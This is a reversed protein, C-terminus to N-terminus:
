DGWEFSLDHKKLLNQYYLPLPYFCERQGNCEYILQKRAMGDEDNWFMAIESIWRKVKGKIEQAMPVICLQVYDHITTLLHADNKQRSLQLMRQPMLMASKVHLTTLVRSCSSLILFLDDIAHDRVEQFVVYDSNDRLISAACQTYNIVDNVIYQSILREPFLEQMHMEDNEAIIAISTSAPLLSLAARTWQTKGSGREGGFVYSWKLTNALRLLRFMHPYDAEHIQLATPNKRISLWCFPYMISHHVAHIRLGDMTGDMIPKHYNFEQDIQPYNCIRNLMQELYGDPLNLVKYRGKDQHTVFVCNANTDIDTIKPDEVYPQLLAFDFM